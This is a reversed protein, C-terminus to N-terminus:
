SENRNCPFSTWYKLLPTKLFVFSTMFSTNYLNWVCKCLERTFFSGLRFEAKRFVGSFSFGASGQEHPGAERDDSNTSILLM